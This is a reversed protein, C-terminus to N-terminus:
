IKKYILKFISVSDNNYVMMNPMTYGFGGTAVNPNWESVEHSHIIKVYEGDDEKYWYSITGFNCRIKFTLKKSSIDAIFINKSHKFLYIKDDEVCMGCNLKDYFWYGLSFGCNKDILFDVEYEYSHSIPKFIIMNDLNRPADKVSVIMGDKTFKVKSLFDNSGYNYMPSLESDGKEYCMYKTLDAEKTEWPLEIEQADDVDVYFWDNEDWKIPLLQAVRGTYRLGNEVAHYSMYYSGDKAKFVTAHGKSWWKEDRSETHLILNHPSVEYPGLVNKSRYSIVGHSTPPGLTGGQATTLYYYGNRKFFKPSETYVGEIAIDSDYVYDDCIKVGEDVVNMGDPSLKYMLNNSVCLYRNGDDDVIHGPDIGKIGEMKYAKSWNGKEINDCVTVYSGFNNMFNYIYYKGNHKILEPAFAGKCDDGNLVHYMPQWDVLDTSKWMQMVGYNGFCSSSVLYYYDGDLLVNPDANEGFIIPNKYKGM